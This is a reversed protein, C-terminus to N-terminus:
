FGLGVTLMPGHSVTSDGTSANQSPLSVYVDRVDRESFTNVFYGVEGRFQVTSLRGLLMGAAGHLRLGNQGGGGFNVASWAIGGGIYPTTSGQEFPHYVGIGINFAALADQTAFDIFAEALFNRADYLWFVGLSPAIAPDRGAPRSLPALMGLKLGFVKSATQKLYANSEGQTVTDIEASDASRKGTTIAAALRKLVPDLQDPGGTTSLNDTFLLDGTAVRYVTVRIRVLSELHTLHTAVVLECGVAKGRVSAEAVGLEAALPEGPSIM